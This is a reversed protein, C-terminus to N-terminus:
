RLMRDFEGGELFFKKLVDSWADSPVLTTARQLDVAPFQDGYRALIAKHIPRHFNKAILEQAEDTYLYKVYEEALERTGKSDVNKDVLAIHPEALVSLRRTKGDATTVTPYIIELNGKAEQVELLAENEWTLHVDGMQQQGAFRVTAARASGDFVPVHTKMVDRVFERAQEETGGNWIVSGWLALFSWKGNGSTKPNPTVIEVGPRTLDAWGHINKPNGKRVVFVITSTYPLSRNPLKGEWGDNILGAKRVADTDTFLALTVVDGPLGNIVAQAQSGSGGHSQRVNVTKGTLNAHRKIFADNVDRWLERTPDCAVNLLEVGAKDRIVGASLIWGVALLTYLGSVAFIWKTWM